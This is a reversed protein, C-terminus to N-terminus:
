EGDEATQLYETRVYGEIVDTRVHSWGDASSQLVVLKQDKYLRRLVDASLSPEVRLNLSSDEDINTVVAIYAGEPLGTETVPMLTPRPTPSATPAPTAMLEMDPTPLPARDYVVPAVQMGPYYFALIQDVTMGHARAMQEAGRQSMGVGHGYRRAEIMFASGIDTVTILENPTTSISLGMAQECGGAGFIPLMVTFDQDLATYPSYAPTATPRPTPSPTPSADPQPDAVADAAGDTPPTDRFTAERLSVKVTFALETMLRSDGDFRPTQARIASVEDIRVLDDEAAYGLRVLPDRLAAVLASHLAPGVGSSGPTKHVTYRRVLSADNALDYPDDRMDMYGYAQPEDTPWVHQGLETQGGNSASYYCQALEGRYMGVLGATEYVAQESLPSYTNRGRFAQDNTTDEVDYAGSSGRKRLAYTRAAIAQAKLAELPFSDGMEYPVVGLLYDEIDITLVPRIAGDAIDLALDGEYVGSGNLTLGGPTEGSCRILKLSSGLSVALGPAHLVLRSGRLSIDVQTGGSFAMAGGELMYDGRFEIRVTDAIELRRLYVRITPDMQALAPACSFFLCAAVFAAIVRGITRKHM